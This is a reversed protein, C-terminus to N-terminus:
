AEGLYSHDIEARYLHGDQEYTIVNGTVRTAYLAKQYVVSGKLDLKPITKGESTQVTVPKDSFQRFVPVAKKVVGSDGGQPEGTGSVAPVEPQENEAAGTGPGMAEDAKSKRGM